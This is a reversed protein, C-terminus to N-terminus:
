NPIIKSHPKEMSPAPDYGGYDNTKVNLMRAHGLPLVEKQEAEAAQRQLRLADQDASFSYQRGAFSTSFLMVFFILAFLAASRQPWPLMRMEPIVCHM